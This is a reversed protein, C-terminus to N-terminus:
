IDSSVDSLVRSKHFCRRSLSFSCYPFIFVLSFYFFISKASRPSFSKMSCFVVCTRRFRASLRDFLLVHKVTHKISVHLILKKQKYFFVRFVGAINVNFSCCFHKTKMTGDTFPLYLPITRAKRASCGSCSCMM